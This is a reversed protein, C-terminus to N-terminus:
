LYREKGDSCVAMVYLQMGSEKAKRVVTEAQELVPTRCFYRGESTPSVPFEYLEYYLIEYDEPFKNRILKENILVKELQDSSEPTFMYSVLSDLEHDPGAKFHAEPQLIRGGKEYDAVISGAQVATAKVHRRYELYDFVYVNGVVRDKYLSLAEIVRCQIDEEAQEIYSCFMNYERTGKIFVDKEYLLCTGGPRCLWVFIWVTHHRKVAAEKLVMIDHDFDSQCLEAYHGVTIQMAKLIDTKLAKTGTRM